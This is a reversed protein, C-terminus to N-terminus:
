TIIQKPKPRRLISSRNLDTQKDMRRDPMTHVTHVRTLLHAFYARSTFLLHNPVHYVRKSKYWKRGEVGFRVGLSIPYGNARGGYNRGVLYNHCPSRTTVRYRASNTSPPATNSDWEMAAHCTPRIDVGTIWFVHTVAFNM